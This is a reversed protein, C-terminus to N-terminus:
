EKMTRTLKTDGDAGVTLDDDGRSRALADSFTSSVVTSAVMMSDWMRSGAGNLSSASPSSHVSFFFISTM